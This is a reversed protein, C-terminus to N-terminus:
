SLPATICRSSSITLNEEVWDPLLTHIIPIYLKRFESPISNECVESAMKEAADLRTPCALDGM